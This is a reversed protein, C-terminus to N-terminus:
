ENDGGNLLKMLPDEEEEDDKGKGLDKIIKMLTQATRNASDTTRNYESVAPHTYINERGKVYEKTVLSGDEKITKELDALIGLQVQYRKFTTLFFYHSQVGSEEALRIIEEAQQKLNQKKMNEGM